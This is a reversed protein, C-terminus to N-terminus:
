VRKYTALFSKMLKTKNPGVLYFLVGEKGVWCWRLCFAFNGSMTTQEIGLLMALNTPEFKRRYLHGYLTM